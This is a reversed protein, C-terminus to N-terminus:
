GVEKAGSATYKISMVKAQMVNWRIYQATIFSLLCFNLNFALLMALRIIYGEAAAKPPKQGMAANIATATTDQQHIMGSFFFM